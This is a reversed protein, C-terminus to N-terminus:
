VETVISKETKTLLKGQCSKIKSKVKDRTALFKRSALCQWTGLWGSSLNRDRKTRGIKAERSLVEEVLDLTELSRGLGLFIAVSDSGSFIM